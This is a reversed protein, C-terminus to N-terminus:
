HLSRRGFARFRKVGGDPILTLKLHTFGVVNRMVPALDEGEFVHETDAKCPRDGDIIEIWGPQNHAPDEDAGDAATYMMGHVRVARPFNGRFDKTDVVIREVSGSLGLRVIAWDVHGPDRSRATEWGDGMNVGRGPLLLNSAPTFHQDSVSTVVAGFLASSLEELPLVSRDSTNRLAPPLSPAVAHGYLRLRAFGGDPYMRVRVHTLPASPTKLAWAHRRSPGCHQIPLITSWGQYGPSTVPHEDGQGTEGSIYTGEVLVSEGYNGVFHATDIEVGEVIGSGVGLQIVAWDFPQPNHRRTEWGDYWAGTHVFVGPRHIPPTPTLLNSAAAFYEDSCSLVKSELTSSALNTTKSFQKDIHQPSIPIINAKTITEM